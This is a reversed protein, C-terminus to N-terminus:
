RCRCCNSRVSQLPRLDLEPTTCRRMTKHRSPLSLAPLRRCRCRMSRASSSQALGASNSRTRTPIMRYPQPSRSRRAQIRRLTHRYNRSRELQFPWHSRRGRVTRPTTRSALTRRLRPPSGRCHPSRCFRSTSRSALRGLSSPTTHRRIRRCPSTSHLFISRHRFPTSNTAGQLHQAIRQLRKLRRGLPIRRRPM